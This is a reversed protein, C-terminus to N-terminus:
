EECESLLFENENIILSEGQIEWIENVTGTEGEIEIELDVHINNEVIQGEFVSESSTYYDNIEDHVDNSMTGEVKGDPLYTIKLTTSVQSTFYEYCETKTEQNTQAYASFSLFVISTM